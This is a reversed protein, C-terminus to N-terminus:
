CTRGVSGIAAAAGTFRVASSLPFEARHNKSWQAMQQLSTPLSLGVLLPFHSSVSLPTLWNGLYANAIAAANANGDTSRSM